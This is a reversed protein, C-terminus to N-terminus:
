PRNLLAARVAPWEGKRGSLEFVYEMNAHDEWRKVEGFLAPIPLRKAVAAEISKDIIMQLGRRLDEFRDASKYAYISDVLPPLMHGLTLTVRHDSMLDVVNIEANTADIMLNRGQSWDFRIGAVTMAVMTEALHNFARQPLGATLHIYTRYSQDAVIGPNLYEHFGVGGTIGRQKRLVEFRGQRAVVQSVNRGPLPDPLLTLASEPVASRNVRLVYLECGPIGYVRSSHGEKCSTLKVQRYLADLSDYGAQRFGLFSLPDVVAVPSLFTGSTDSQSLPSTFPPAVALGSDEPRSFMIFSVEAASRPM